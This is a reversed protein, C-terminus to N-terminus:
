LAKLDKLARHIASLAANAQRKNVKVDSEHAIKNRLKHAMWVHDRKSFVKKASVMREGMTSGKFKSERLAKDLLKDAELVAVQLTDENALYGQIKEWRNRYDQVNLNTTQRSMLSVFTLVGIGFIVIGILWAIEM